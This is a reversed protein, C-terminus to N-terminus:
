RLFGDPDGAVEKRKALYIRCTEPSKKTKNM